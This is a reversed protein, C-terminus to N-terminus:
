VHARGIETEETVPLADMDARLAVKKGSDSRHLTAVVATELMRRVDYGLEKMIGAIRDSTYFERNGLEPHRHLDKRIDSLRDELQKARALYDM